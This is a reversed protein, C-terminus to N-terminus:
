VQAMNHWRKAMEDAINETISKVMEGTEDINSLLSKVMPAVALNVNLTHRAKSVTKRPTVKAAIRYKVEQGKPHCM